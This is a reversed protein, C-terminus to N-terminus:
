AMKWRILCIIGLGVTVTLALMDGNALSRGASSVSGSSTSGMSGAGNGGGAQGNSTSLAAPDYTASGKGVVTTGYTMTAAQSPSSESEAKTTLFVLAISPAYVPITCTKANTDCNITVTNETGSLRGDSSFTSGMSQGAWTINSKESVTPAQLYRVQVTSQPLPSGAFDITAWYTSAGSPDNVFNFLVARTPAGNEYVAYVPSYISGDNISLDVIQSVNSSGFVEAVVLTPYYASGTTWQYNSPSGSPPPTFPNYYTSQGGVHLLAATFNRYAMQLAYDTIRIPSTTLFMTTWTSCPPLVVLPSLSM